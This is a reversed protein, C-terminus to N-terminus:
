IISKVANIVDECIDEFRANLAESINLSYDIEFIEIGIVYGRLCSKYNIIINVLNIDHQAAFYNLVKPFEDFSILTVKGTELGLYTSDIIIVFDDYNIKNLCYVFDTEGIIVKIDTKLSLIENQIKELVHLSIGDDGMVRNGIGIVKIV